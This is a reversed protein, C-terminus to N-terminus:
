SESTHNDNIGLENKGILKRLLRQMKVAPSAKLEELMGRLADCESRLGDCQSRLGDCQTQLDMWLGRMVSVVKFHMDHEQSGLSLFMNKAVIEQCHVPAMQEMYGFLKLWAGLESKEDYFFEKMRAPALLKLGETYYDAIDGTHASERSGQSVHLRGCVLNEACRMFRYKEAMKLWLTYDQTTKLDERFVGVEEFIKKPILLTCGHLSQEALLYYVMQYGEVDPMRIEQILAGEEDVFDYDSYVIVDSFNVSKFVDMELEIKNPKYFDDHSLWSFYDGTMKEIGYNLASAVGGNKKYFYRVSDGYSLAIEETQEEDTSGDNVVIVEINQYTQALASDIAEVLYDAGNYVPIIISVKPQFSSANM